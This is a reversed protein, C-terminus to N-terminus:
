GQPGLHRVCECVCVCVLVSVSVFRPVRVCEYVWVYVFLAETAARLCFCFLPSLPHHSSVFVRARGSRRLGDDFRAPRRSM